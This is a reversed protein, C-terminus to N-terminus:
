TERSQPEALVCVINRKAKTTTINLPQAHVLLVSNAHEHISFGRVGGYGNSTPLVSTGFGHEGAYRRRAWLFPPYVPNQGSAWNTIPLLYGLEAYRRERPSVRV